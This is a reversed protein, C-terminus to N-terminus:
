RRPCRAGRQKAFYSVLTLTIGVGLLLGVTFHIGYTLLRNATVFPLVCTYLVLAISTLLLGMKQKNM